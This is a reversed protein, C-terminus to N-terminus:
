RVKLGDRQPPEGDYEEALKTHKAWLAIAEHLLENRTVRRENAVSCRYVAFDLFGRAEDSLKVKVETGQM